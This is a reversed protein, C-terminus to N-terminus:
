GLQVREEPYSYRGAGGHGALGVLLTLPGVRGIFMTVAIVMQSTLHLTSTDITSVGVTAFASTAEFLHDLFFEPRGEIVVILLTTTLVCFIGLAVIMLARKVIPQPVTRGRLEIQERGRLLSVVAMISLAFSVTKIGGGTSGPSAGVFMMMIGFFKTGPELEALNVTNFGATRFTVSQFWSASIQEGVSLDQMLSESELLYFGCMGWGLLGATTVAVLWTTNTLRTRGHPVHVSNANNRTHHKINWRLVRGLDALAAFGLGGVIILAPVVAWIQWRTSMSSFSDPMMAFGANCFASVSHFVCRFAREGWPLDPWLGWLAAAGVFEAAATFIVISILLKRLAGSTESELMDALFATERVQLRRASVLAFLSGCTMIGLGGIQFLCLIIVHGTTSWYSGTDVVILGTVCSASTATFFAVHFPAGGDRSDARARPLMLLITGITILALFSAVLIFAPNRGGSSIWRILMVLGVGTRLFIAAESFNNMADFRGESGGGGIVAFCMAVLWLAVVALSVRNDKLFARHSVSWYYRAALGVAFFAMILITATGLPVDTISEWKRSSRHLVIAVVGVIQMVREAYLMRSSYRMRKRARDLSINPPPLDTSM